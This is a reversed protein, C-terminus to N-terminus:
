QLYSPTSLNFTDVVTQLPILQHTLADYDFKIIRYKSFAPVNSGSVENGETLMVYYHGDLGREVRRPLGYLSTWAIASPVTPMTRDWYWVTKSRASTGNLSYVIDSISGDAHGIPAFGFIGEADEILATPVPVPSATPNPPITNLGHESSWLVTQSVADYAMSISSYRKGINGSPPAYTYLAPLAITTASAQEFIQVLGDNAGNTQGRSYIVRGDYSPQKLANATYLNEAVSGGGAELTVVGTALNIRRANLQDRTSLVPEGLTNPFIEGETICPNENDDIHAPNVTLTSGTVKIISGSSTGTVQGAAEVNFLYVNGDQDVNFGALLNVV